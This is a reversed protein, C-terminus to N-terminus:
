YRLSCAARKSMAQPKSFPQLFHRQNLLIALFQRAKLSLKIIYCKSETYSFTWLYKPHHLCARLQECCVESDIKKNGKKQEMKDVSSSICHLKSLNLRNTKAFTEDYLLDTM